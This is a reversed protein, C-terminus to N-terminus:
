RDLWPNNFLPTFDMSRVAYVVGAAATAAAALWLAMEGIKVGVSRESREIGRVVEPM